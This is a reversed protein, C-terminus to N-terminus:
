WFYVFTQLDLNEFTLVRVVCLCVSAVSRMVVRCEDTTTTLTETINNLSHNSLSDFGRYKRPTKILRAAQSTVRQQQCLIDNEDRLDNFSRSGTFTLSELDGTPQQQSDHPSDHLMIVPVPLSYHAQADPLLPLHDTFSSSPLTAAYCSSNFPRTISSTSLLHEYPRHGSVLM